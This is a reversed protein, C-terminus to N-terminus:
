DVGTLLALSFVSTIRLTIKVAGPLKPHNVPLKPHQTGTLEPDHHGTEVCSFEPSVPQHQNRNMSHHILSKAQPTAHHYRIL